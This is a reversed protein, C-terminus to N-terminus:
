DVITEKKPKKLFEFMIKIQSHTNRATSLEPLHDEEFFCIDKTEIGTKAKGGVIECLIFLKYYHFAQLPHGHKRMDFLALLRTPVVKYGAEETIEKVINEKPSLGVECFGGPLSWRNDNKEKVMLIKNEHFVVGRVDVKPTPYGSEHQFIDVIKEKKVSTHEELIEASIRRLEEYRETDFENKSFTLGAQAIAQIRQAWNLWKQSM